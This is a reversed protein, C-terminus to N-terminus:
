ARDARVRSDCYGHWWGQSPFCYSLIRGAREYIYSVLGRHYRKHLRPPWRKFQCAKCQSQVKGDHMGKRRERDRRRFPPIRLHRQPKTDTELLGAGLGNATEGGHQANAQHISCAELIPCAPILHSLFLFHHAGFTKLLVRSRCSASHPLHPSSINRGCARFTEFLKPSTWKRRTFLWHGPFVSSVILLCARSPSVTEFCSRFRRLFDRFSANFSSSM